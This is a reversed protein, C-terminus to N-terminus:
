KEFILKKNKVSVVGVKGITKILAKQLFVPLEHERALISLHSLVSGKETVILKISGFLLYLDPDLHSVVIVKTGKKYDSVKKIVQYKLKKLNDKKPPVLFAGSAIM